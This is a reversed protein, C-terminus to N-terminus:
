RSGEAELIAKGILEPIQPLLSNGVPKSEDLRRSVGDAMGCLAGLRDLWNTRWEDSGTGRHVPWGGIERFPWGPQLQGQGDADAAPGSGKGKGKGKIGRRVAHTCGDPRQREDPYAVLYVRNREQPSGVAYAPICDWEVRLGCDALEGLVDGMGRHLLDAVNELITYRPRVVRIARVVEWFLGSRSGSVGARKGAGSIDQCPFGATIVDTPGYRFALDRVDDYIPVKPWHKALVRQCFPEIECFAVTEFGGTRELGLSFGGIGSFLDLVRLTM